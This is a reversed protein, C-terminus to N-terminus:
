HFLKKCIFAKMTLLEYNNEIKKSLDVWRKEMGESQLWKAGDYSEKIGPIESRRKIGTDTVDVIHELTLLQKKQQPSLNRDFFFDSKIEKEIRNLEKRIKPHIETGYAKSLEIYIARKGLYGYRKLENKEMVKPLDHLKLYDRVLEYELSPFLESHILFIQEGIVQVRKIHPKVHNDLFTVPSVEAYTYTASFLFLLFLFGNM